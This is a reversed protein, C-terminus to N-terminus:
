LWSRLLGGMDSVGTVRWPEEPGGESTKAVGGVEFFGQRAGRTISLESACPVSFDAKGKSPVMPTVGTPVEQDRWQM